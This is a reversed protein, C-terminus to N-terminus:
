KENWKSNIHLRNTSVTRRIFCKEIRVSFYFCKKEYIKWINHDRHRSVRKTNRNHSDTEGNCAAISAFVFKKNLIKRVNLFMPKFLTIPTCIFEIRDPKENLKADMEITRYVCLCLWFLFQECCSRKCNFATAFTRCAIFFFLLFDM